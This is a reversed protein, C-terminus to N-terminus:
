CICHVGSYFCYVTLPVTLNKPTLLEEHFCVWDVLLTIAVFSQVLKDISFSEFLVLVFDLILHFSNSLKLFTQIVVNVLMGEGNVLRLGCSFELIIFVSNIAQFQDM